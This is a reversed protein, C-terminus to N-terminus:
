RHVIGHGHLHMLVHAMNEVICAADAESYSATREIQEMLEGGECLEMVIYVAEPTECHGYMHVIHEHEHKQLNTLMEIEM